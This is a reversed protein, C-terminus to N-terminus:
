ASRFEDKTIEIEFSGGCIGSTRHPASNICVFDPKKGTHIKTKCGCKGCKFYRGDDINSTKLEKEFDDVMSQVAAERLVRGTVDKVAFMMADRVLNRNEM